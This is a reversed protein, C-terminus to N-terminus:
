RRTGVSRPILRANKPFNCDLGMPSLDGAEHSVGDLEVCVNEHGINQGEDDYRSPTVWEAKHHTHGETQREISNRFQHAGQFRTDNDFQAYAPLGFIRWHETLAKM